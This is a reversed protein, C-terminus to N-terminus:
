ALPSWCYTYACSSLSGAFTSQSSCWGNKMRWIHSRGHPPQREARMGSTGSIKLVEGPPVRLPTRRDAPQATRANGTGASRAPPDYRNWTQMFPATYGYVLSYRPRAGAQLRPGAHILTESLILADGARSELQRAVTGDMFERLTGTPMDMSPEGSGGM